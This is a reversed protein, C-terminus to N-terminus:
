LQFKHMTDRVITVVSAQCLTEQKIPMRLVNLPRAITKKLFNAVANFLCYTVAGPLEPVTTRVEM